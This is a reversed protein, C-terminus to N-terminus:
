DEGDGQKSRLYEGIREEAKRFVTIDETRNYEAHAERRIQNVVPDGESALSTAPEGGWRLGPDWHKETM